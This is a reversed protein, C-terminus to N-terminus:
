SWKHLTFNLTDSRQFAGLEFTGFTEKRAGEMVRSLYLFCTDDLTTAASAVWFKLLKDLISCILANKTEM